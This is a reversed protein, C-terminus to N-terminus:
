ADLGLLKCAEAIKEVTVGDPASYRIRNSLENWAKGISQENEYDERSLYCRGPSPYNGADIEMRKDAIAFRIDGNVTVWKRGITVVTVEHEKHYYQGRNPVFWLKQGVTLEMSVDGKGNRRRCGDRWRDRYNSKAAMRHLLNPLGFATASGDIFTEISM